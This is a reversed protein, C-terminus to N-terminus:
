FEDHYSDWKYYDTSRFSKQNGIKRCAPGRPMVLTPPCFRPVRGQCMSAVHVDFGDARAEAGGPAAGVVAGPEEFRRGTWRAGGHDKALM